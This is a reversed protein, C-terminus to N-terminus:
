RETSYEDSEAEGGRAAEVAEMAETFVEIGIDIHVRTRAFVVFPRPAAFAAQARLEDTLL